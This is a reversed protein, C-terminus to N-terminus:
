QCLKGFHPWSLKTGSCFLGLHAWVRLQRWIIISLSNAPRPWHSWYDETQQKQRPFGQRSIQSLYDEYLPRCRKWRGEMLKGALALFCLWSDLVTLDEIQISSIFCCLYFMGIFPVWSINTGATFYFTVQLNGVVEVLVWTCFVQEMTVPGFCLIEVGGAAAMWICQRMRKEVKCISPSIAIM